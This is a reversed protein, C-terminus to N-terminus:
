VAIEKTIGERSVTRIKSKMTSLDVSLLCREGDKSWELGIASDQTEAMKFSGDFTVIGASDQGRHQLATLGYVLEPTVNGHGYIGLIGCM